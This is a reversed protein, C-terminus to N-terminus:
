APREPRSIFWIKLTVYQKIRKFQQVSGIVRHQLVKRILGSDGSRGLNNFALGARDCEGTWFRVQGIHFFGYEPHLLFHGEERRPVVLNYFSHLGGTPQGSWM